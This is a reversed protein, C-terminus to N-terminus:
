RLILRDSVGCSNPRLDTYHDFLFMKHLRGDSVEAYEDDNKLHVAVFNVAELGRRLEEKVVEVERLM